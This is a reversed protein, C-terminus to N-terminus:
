DTCGPTNDKPLLIFSDLEGSFRKLLGDEGDQNPLCFDPAKDGVKLM